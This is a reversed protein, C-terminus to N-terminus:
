VNLRQRLQAIREAVLSPHIIVEAQSSSSQTSENLNQRLQAHREAILSPHNNLEGPSSSIQAMKMNNHSPLAENNSATAPNVATSIKRMNVELRSNCEKKMTEFVIRAHNDQPVNHNALGKNDGHIHLHQLSQLLTKANTLAITLDSLKHNGTRTGTIGRPNPNVNDVKWTDSQDLSSDNSWDPSPFQDISFSDDHFDVDPAQNLQNEKDCTNFCNGVVKSTHEKGVIEACRKFFPSFKEHHYSIFGIERRIVGDFETTDEKGTGTEVSDLSSFLDSDDLSKDKGVVTSPSSSLIECRHNESNPLVITTQILRKKSKSRKPTKYQLETGMEAAVSCADGAAWTSSGDGSKLPKKKISWNEQRNNFIKGKNINQSEELEVGAACGHYSHNNVVELTKLHDHIQLADIVDKAADWLDKIKVSNPNEELTACLRQETDNNNYNIDIHVTPKIDSKDMMVDSVTDFATDDKVTATDDMFLKKRPTMFFLEENGQLEDDKVSDEEYFLKRNVKEVVQEKVDDDIYKAHGFWDYNNFPEKDVIDFMGFSKNDFLCHDGGTVMRDKNDVGQWLDDDNFTSSITVEKQTMTQMMAANEDWPAVHKSKTETSTSLSVNHSTLDSLEPDFSSYSKDRLDDYPCRLQMKGAAEQSGKTTSTMKKKWIGHILKPLLVSKKSKKEKYSNGDTIILLEETNKHSNSGTATIM